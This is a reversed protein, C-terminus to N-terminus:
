NNRPLFGFDNPNFSEDYLGTSIGGRWKGGVKGIFGFYEHGLEAKADSLYRQSIAKKL